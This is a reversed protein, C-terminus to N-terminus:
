IQLLGYGRLIDWKKSHYFVTFPEPSYEAYKKRADGFTVRRSLDATLGTIEMIFDADPPALKIHREESNSVITIGEATRLPPNGTWVLRCAEDFIRSADPKILQDTVLSPEITSRPVKMQFWKDVGAELGEGAMYADLASELGDAVMNINYGRNDAFYVENNAFPNPLADKRRVGFAQPDRGAPSDITMVYRDWRASDILDARFLQRVVELADVTEQLTQGPFGYRLDGQVMIGAYYLNRLAITAQEINIGSNGLELLRDCASDLSGTVALCGAAAMLRCLDWTFGSEFRICTWWAFKLRRRLIEVSIERLLDPPVAEGAFYFGRSGTQAAVAVMWDVFLPADAKNFEGRGANRFADGAHYSGQVPRMANWRCDYPLRGMPNASNCLPFYKKFPLGGFDPCGLEALTAHAPVGPVPGAETCVGEPVGGCMIADIQIAGEGAILYDVYSFVCRDTMRGLEESSYKGCLIIKIDPFNAKVYQGCRLAPLLNGAAPVTLAMFGPRHELLIGRLIELMKNEVPNCAKVLETELASFEPYSRPTRSQEETIGLAPAATARFLDFIDSLYLGSLYKACDTQGLWGFNDQLDVADDFRGAQPLFDPSCLLGALSPDEGRLFSMATGITDLYQHRLSYIRRINDNNGPAFSGFVKGLFESTLLSDFLEASLDAQVPDHGKRLLYGKLYATGPYPANPEMFPPTILLIKGM